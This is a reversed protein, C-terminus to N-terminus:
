TREEKELQFIITGITFQLRVRIQVPVRLRDDTLWVHLHGSRRYLVNNFLFIEYVMTKRKGSVTKVEERGQCQVRVMVSKKGDSLPVQATQGPELSLTRLYYLGGVVDHVCAPIDIEHSAVVSSNKLLDTELYSAKKSAPDFTVKTERERKGERAIMHTSTACLGGALNVSYDDNVKFLKSVLGTSELHLNAQWGPQSGQPSASWSLKAKGATVLRWEVGFYLTEKAPLGTAGASTVVPASHGPNSQPIGAPAGLLFVLGCACRKNLRSVLM